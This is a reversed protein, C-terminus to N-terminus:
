LELFDSVAVVEQVAVLSALLADGAIVNQVPRALLGLPEARVLGAAVPLFQVAFAYSLGYM